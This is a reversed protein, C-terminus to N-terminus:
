IRERLEVLPELREILTSVEEISERRDTKDLLDNAKLTALKDRLANLSAELDKLPIHKIVNVCFSVADSVLGARMEALDDLRADFMEEINM